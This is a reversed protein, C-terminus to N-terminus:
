AVAGEFKSTDAVVVSRNYKRMVSPALAAYLVASSLGGALWSLDIGGMAKAIPGQLAPVLGYMFLWTMVIGGVFAVLGALNWAPLRKSGVPDFLYESDGAYHRLVWFYHVLTIGGWTAVWAVIGSLVADLTGALDTRYIFFIVALFAVLGVIVSFLRRPIRLDLAQTSVTCTYINLINTAIPGHVVLLLVPIAFAGYNDVVLKGPDVTSSKTALTAGLLGLWVVPLFQGLTSAAYLKGRPVTRSVFRSYDCAYIFWTIGWGIGIATMVGTMVSWKAAGTLAHGHPGAFSWNIDMFFWAAITMAALIVITIPVTWREFAAIARYGFWSIMVQALMILGAVVIRLGHHPNAADVLGLKGLLAMVLDLVIWTNLACWVMPVITHVFAPIYSGVRGFTDRSLVVGTAGTRQGLLVFFGFLAMGILNGVVLVLVTDRLGLGLQVGLAGLVWNIPAINAGCWIWFQGSVSRTRVEEPIHQLQEEIDAVASSAHVSTSM